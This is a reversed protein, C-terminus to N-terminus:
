DGCSLWNHLQQEFEDGNWDLVLFRPLLYPNAKREVTRAVVTCANQFKLREVIKVTENSYIGHPYSFSDVKRSIKDELDFKSRGIEEEQEQLPLNSLFPHSVTHAGIEFPPCKALSVLENVTMPLYHKRTTLTQGAWQAVQKLANKRAEVSLTSLIQTLVRYLMSRSLIVDNEPLEKIDESYDVKQCPGESITRWRYLRGSLTVEFIGPLTKPALIIQELSDRFFEDRCGISGTIIFFVASVDYRQLIPRALQFNDGYGDDLTVVIEKKGFSFRKLNRGMEQMQVTRGYKKIIQLHEKFHDPSVSLQRPDFDLKIVRHYMLILGRRNLRNRTRELLGIDQSENKISM